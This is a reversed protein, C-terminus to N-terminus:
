TEEKKRLISTPVNKLDESFNQSTSYVIRDKLKITANMNLRLYYLGHSIAMFIMGFIIGAFLWILSSTYAVMKWSYGAKATGPLFALAIIVGGIFELWGLIFFLRELFDKSEDM